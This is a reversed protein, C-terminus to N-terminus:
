REWRAMKEVQTESPGKPLPPPDPLGAATAVAAATVVAIVIGAGWAVATEGALRGAEAVVALGVLCATALALVAVAAWPWIADVPWQVQAEAARLLGAVLPPWGLVAAHGAAVATAWRWQRLGGALLGRGGDDPPALLAAPVALAAFWGAAVVAGMAGTEPALFYWTAMGALSTAMAAVSLGSRLGGRAMAVEAWSGRTRGQGGLLPALALWRRRCLWTATLVALAAGGAWGVATTASPACWGVWGAASAVVVGFSAADEAAAGSRAAAWASASAAAIGVATGVAVAGGDGAVLWRAGGALLAAALPWAARELCWAADVAPVGPVFGRPPRGRAAVAAWGGCAVAAAAVAASEAAAALLAITAAASGAALWSAPRRADIRLLLPLIAATM